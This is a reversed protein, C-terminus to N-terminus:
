CRRSMNYVDGVVTRSRISDSLPLENRSAQKEHMIMEM